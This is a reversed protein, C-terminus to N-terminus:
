AVFELADFGFTFFPWGDIRRSPAFDSSGLVWVADSVKTNRDLCYQWQGGDSVNEFFREFADADHVAPALSAGSHFVSAEPTDTFELSTRLHVGRRVTVVRGSVAVAQANIASRQRLYGGGLPVPSAWTGLPAEPATTLQLAATDVGQDFGFLHLDCTTAVAAGMVRLTNGVGVDIYVRWTIPDLVVTTGVLAANQAAIDAALQTLLDDALGSGSVVGTGVTHVFPVAGGGVDYVFSIKGPASLVRLLCPSPAVTM